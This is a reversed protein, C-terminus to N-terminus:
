QFRDGETIWDAPKEDCFRMVYDSYLKSIMERVDDESKADIMAVYNIKKWDDMKGTRSGYGTIWHLFPLM